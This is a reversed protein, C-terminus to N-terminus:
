SAGAGGAPLGVGGIRPELQEEIREVLKPNMWKFDRMATGGITKEKWLLRGNGDYCEVIIRERGGFAANVYLLSAAGRDRVERVLYALSADAAQLVVIEDSPGEVAVGHELLFERLLSVAKQVEDLPKGRGALIVLGTSANAAADTSAAPPRAAPLEAVQTESEGTAATPTGPESGAPRGDDRSAAPAPSTEAPKEAMRVPRCEVSRLRSEAVRLRANAEASRRLLVVSCESERRWIWADGEDSGNLVLEEGDSWGGTLGLPEPATATFLYGSVAGDDMQRLMLHELHSRGSDHLDELELRLWDGGLVWEGSVRTHVTVDAATPETEWSGALSGLDTQAGAAGAFLGAAILFPVTRRPTPSM